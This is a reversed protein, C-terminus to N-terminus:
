YLSKYVIRGGCSEKKAKLYLELLIFLLNKISYKSTKVELEIFYSTPALDKVVSRMLREAFRYGGEIMTGQCLLAYINREEDVTFLLDTARKNWKLSEEFDNTKEPAEILMIVFANEREREMLFYLFELSLSLKEYLATLLRVDEERIGLRRKFEDSQRKQM